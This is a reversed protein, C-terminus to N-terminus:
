SDGQGNQEKQHISDFYSEPQCPPCQRQGGTCSAVGGQITEELTSRDTTRDTLLIIRELAVTRVLVGLEFACGQNRSTFGRLDM